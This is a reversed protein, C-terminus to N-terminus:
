KGKASQESEGKSQVLGDDFTGVELVRILKFCEPSPDEHNLTELASMVEFPETMGVDFIKTAAIGSLVAETPNLGRGAVTHIEGTGDAVYDIVVDFPKEEEPIHNFAVAHIKVMDLDPVPAEVAQEQPKFLAQAKAAKIIEVIGKDLNFNFDMATQPSGIIAYLTGHPQKLLNVLRFIAYQDVRTKFQIGIILNGDSDFGLVQKLDSIAPFHIECKLPQVVEPKAPKAAKTATAEPKTGPSEAKLKRRAQKNAEKVEESLKATM